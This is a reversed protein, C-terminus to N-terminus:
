DNAKELNTNLHEIRGELYKIQAKLEGKTIKKNISEPVTLLSAAYNSMYMSILSMEKALEFAKM